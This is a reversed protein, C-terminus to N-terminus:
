ANTNINESIPTYHLPLMRAKPAHSGPEFGPVGVLLFRSTLRSKSIPTLLCIIKSADPIRLGQTYRVSRLSYSVFPTCFSYTEFSGASVRNPIPGLDLADVASM